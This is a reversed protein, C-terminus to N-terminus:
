SALRRRSLRDLIISEDRDINELFWEFASQAAERVGSGGDETRYAPTTVCWVQDLDPDGFAYRLQVRVELGTAEM